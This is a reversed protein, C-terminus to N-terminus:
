LRRVRGYFGSPAAPALMHSPLGMPNRMWATVEANRAAEIAKQSDIVLGASLRRVLGELSDLRDDHALSDKEYTILSMQHFLSYTYRQRLDYRALTIAEDALVDEHLVLAGRGLVPELTDIIRREKQGAVYEEEVGPIEAIGAEQYMRQLVPTLIVAFAGYGFNKEIVVTNPRYSMISKVIAELKDPEYGGPFGEVKSVFITSNLLAGHSVGTEDGNQGGGAPDIYTMKQKAPAIDTSTTLPLSFAFKKTGIPRVVQTAGSFNRVVSMPLQETNFRMLVINATKLPFRMADMLATLLMHQLQFYAPGQDMEKKVLIDENIRPDLAIGQQGDLGHGTTLEPHAEAIARVSPALTEGYHEMQAANPLRGPWVRVTFGRSPLTNYISDTSQPTGLYVIRGDTNMSTFDRTLNLLKERKVQTDSNVASEVDDGILLDARKGQANGMIGFCAVSPSKDIRKLQYNVDFADTATRDGESKDPQLPWLIDVNKILRVILTSIENAQTEGASVILIRLQTDHILSWVAYIATITTKAQGRQAQIMLYDPGDALFEGIEDQIKSNTFGLEQMMDHLFPLFTPYEERLVELAAIRVGREVKKIKM